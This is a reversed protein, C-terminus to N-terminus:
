HFIENEGVASYNIGALINRATVGTDDALSLTDFKDVREEQQHKAGTPSM